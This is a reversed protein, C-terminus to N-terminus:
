KNTSPFPAYIQCPLGCWPCDDGTPVEFYYLFDKHRTCMYWETREQLLERTDDRRELGDLLFKTPKLPPKRFM